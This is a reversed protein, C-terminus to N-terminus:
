STARRIACRRTCRASTSRPTRRRTSCCTSGPRSSTRTAAIGPTRDGALGGERRQHRAQARAGRRRDDPLRADPRRADLDGPLRGRAARDARGVPQRSRGPPAGGHARPARRRSRDGGARRRREGRRRGAAQDHRGGGARAAVVLAGDRRQRHLGLRQSGRRVVQRDDRAADRTQGAGSGRRRGGDARAGGRSRWPGAEDNARGGRHVDPHLRAVRRLRRVARARPDDGARARRWAPAGHELAARAEAYWRNRDAPAIENLFGSDENITEFRLVDVSLIRAPPLVM